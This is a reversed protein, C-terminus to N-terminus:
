KGKAAFPVRCAAPAVKQVAPIVHRGTFSRAFPSDAYSKRLLASVLAFALYVLILGKVLGTVAGVVNDVPPALVIRVFKEVLFRIAFFLVVLVVIAALFPLLTSM